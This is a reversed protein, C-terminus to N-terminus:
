EGSLMEGLKNLKPGKEVIHVKLILHFVINKPLEGVVLM